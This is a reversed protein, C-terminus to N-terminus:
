VKLGFSKLCKAKTPLELNVDRWLLRPLQHFFKMSSTVVIREEILYANFNPHSPDKATSLLLKSASFAEKLVICIQRM